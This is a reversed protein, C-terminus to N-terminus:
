DEKTPLKPEPGFGPPREGPCHPRMWGPSLAGEKVSFTDGVVHHIGDYYGEGTAIVDIM